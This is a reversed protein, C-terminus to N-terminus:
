AFAAFSANANPDFHRLVLPASRRSKSSFNASKISRSVTYREFKSLKSLQAGLGHAASKLKFPKTSITSKPINSPSKPQRSFQIALTFPM